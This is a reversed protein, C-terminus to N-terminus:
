SANDPAPEGWVVHGSVQVEVIGNPCHSGVLDTVTRDFVAAEEPEMRALSFGNRAHFSEVYAAIPQQFLVPATEREGHTAFLGRKKLEDILDYPAYDRNTSYRSIIAALEADWPFPAYHQSVIALYAGPLLVQRFRPLVGEWEMWHLSEGAMILAYPPALAVEEIPGHIWTLRPSDGGPLRQGQAIMPASFDVADVRDVLPALPRALYGTGCGADLVHRPEGTILSTL